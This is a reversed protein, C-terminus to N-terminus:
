DLEVNATVTSVIAIDPTACSLVDKTVTAEM